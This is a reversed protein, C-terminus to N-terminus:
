LHTSGAEGERLSVPPGLIETLLIANRAAYPSRLLDDVKRRHSSKGPRRGTRFEFDQALKEERASPRNITIKPPAPPRRDVRAVPKPPSPLAPPAEWPMPPPFSETQRRWIIEREAETLLPPEDETGKSFVKEKLWSLLGLLVVVLLGIANEPLDSLDLALFM